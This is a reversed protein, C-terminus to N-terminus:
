KVLMLPVSCAALVKQAVSGMVASGIAGHGHTGMIIMNAKAKKSLAVIEDAPHGVVWQSSHRIGHRAVLKEIPKLVKQAEEQHYERVVTAGLLRSVRNPVAPQVNLLVVEGDKGLLDENAMLYGVAKKSYKSGDVALIIKM